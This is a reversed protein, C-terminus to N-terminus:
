QRGKRPTGQGEWRFDSLMTELKGVVRVPLIPPHIYAGHHIIEGNHSSIYNKINVM